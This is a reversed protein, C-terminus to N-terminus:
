HNRMIQVCFRAVFIDVSLIVNRVLQYAYFQPLLSRNSFKTPVRGGVVSRQVQGMGLTVELVLTQLHSNELWIVRGIHRLNNTTALHVHAKLGHDM